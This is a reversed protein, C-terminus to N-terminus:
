KMVMATEAGAIALRPLVDIGPPLNIIPAPCDAVKFAEVHDIGFPEPRPACAVRSSVHDNEARRVATEATDYRL